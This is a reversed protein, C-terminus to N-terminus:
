LSWWCAPFGINSERRQQKFGHFGGDPGEIQANRKRLPGRDVVAVIHGLHMRSNAHLLQESADAFVIWGLNASNLLPRNAHSLLQKFLVFLHNSSSTVDDLAGHDSGVGVGSQDADM